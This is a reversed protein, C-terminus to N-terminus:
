IVSNWTLMSVLESFLKIRKQMLNVYVGRYKKGNVIIDNPWKYKVTYEPLIEKVTELIAFTSAHSALKAIDITDAPICLTAYVNGNM